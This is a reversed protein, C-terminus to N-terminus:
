SWWKKAGASRPMERPKRSTLVKVAQAVSVWGFGLTACVGPMVFGSATDTKPTKRLPWM